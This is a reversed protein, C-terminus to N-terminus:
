STISIGYIIYELAHTCLDFFFAISWIFIGFVFFTYCNGEFHLLLNLIFTSAYFFCLHQNYNSLTTEVILKFKRISRMIHYLVDLCNPKKGKRFYEYGLLFITQSGYVSEWYKKELCCSRPFFKCDSGNWRKSFSPHFPTPLDSWFLLSFIVSSWEQISVKVKYDCYISISVVNQDNQKTLRCEPWKSTYSVSVKALILTVLGERL